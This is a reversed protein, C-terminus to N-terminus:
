TNKRIKEDFNTTNFNNNIHGGFVYSLVGEELKEQYRLISIIKHMKDINEKIFVNSVCYVLPSFCDCDYVFVSAGYEILLNVIEVNCNYAAVHLPTCHNIQRKNPNAKNELLLKTIEYNDNLVSFHLPTRYYKDEVDVEAGNSLMKEVLEKKNEKVALHLANLFYKKV